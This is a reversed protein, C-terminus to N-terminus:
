QDYYKGENFTRVLDPSFVTVATVLTGNLFGEPFALMFLYPVINELSDRLAQADPWLSLGMLLLASVIVSLIGGIFGGGLMYAYLNTFTMRGIYWLLLRSVSAPIIVVLLVNIGFSYTDSLDLLLLCCQAIGGAVVALSWGFLVVVVTIGLLHITIGEDSPRVGLMWFGVLLLIAVYFCHQRSTKAKLARWPAFFLAALVSVLSLLWSSFAFIAPVLANDLHM